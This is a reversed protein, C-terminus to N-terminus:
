AAKASPEEVKSVPFVIVRRARREQPLLSAYLFSHIPVQIGAKRALRVVAGVETELESPRGNLVDRMNGIATEPGRGLQSLAYQLADDPLKAGCARAVGVVEQMAGELLRSTEPVSRVVGLPARTVAGIASWPGVLLLKEWRASIIDSSIKATVGAGSFAKHIRQMRDSTRGDLEGIIVATQPLENRIHGPSVVSGFMVAVGGAAHETGFAAALQEPAEVGDMLPVVVTDPGLLPSVTEIAGAVQWGKVALLVVEVAGVSAPDDSAKAPRVVFGRNVDDVRLGKERIAQFTAGRAVFTVDEGARALRGGFFGGVAGVGVVAIRM